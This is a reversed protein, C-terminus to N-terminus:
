AMDFIHEKGKAIYLIEFGIKKPMYRTLEAINFSVAVDNSNSLIKVHELQGCYQGRLAAEGNPLIDKINLKDVCPSSTEYTRRLYM